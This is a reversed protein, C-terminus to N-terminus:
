PLARRLRSLAERIRPVEQTLAIRFYGSRGFASGPTVVVGASLLRDAFAVDSGGRPVRIWVYFTARPPSVEWGLTRAGELLADRRSRYVRRTEEVCDQPGELAEIAAWQVAQFVGSDVNTKVGGLARIIEVDGVAFGVRWGTMQYTKSLSHFEIGARKGGPFSLLSPPPADYFIESYAADHALVLDHKRAFRIAERFFGGEAVAGTPNNPYNLFLLESRSLKGRPIAGFDPLWGSAAELPMLYPTGGAFRTAVAYVPYGPTPVLSVRGPNLVALPLHAIGEKSGILALVEREPDVAVGFRRKMFGAAAERFRRMGEYSPYRHNEGQGAARRLAEVIRPPTPRDPDGVGLDILDVGRKRAEARKRDLAAFPYPPLTQIRRAARGRRATM